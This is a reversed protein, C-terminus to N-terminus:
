EWERSTLRRVHRSKTIVLSVVVYVITAVIMPGTLGTSPHEYNLSVVVTFFFDLAGIYVITLMLYRGWPQRLCMAIAGAYVWILTVLFRAVAYHMKIAADHDLPHSPFIAAKCVFLDAALLLLCGAAVIIRGVVANGHHRRHRYSM